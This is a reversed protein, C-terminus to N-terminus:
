STRCRRRVGALSVLGVGLLAMTGPEPVDTIFLTVLGSSDKESENLLVTLTDPNPGRAFMRSVADTNNDLTTDLLMLNFLQFNPDSGSDYNRVELLLNGNAPNYTFPTTFPVFVDFPAPPNALNLAGGSASSFTIPGTRVVTLDPGLNNAFNNSLGDVAAGTTSLSISLNSVSYPFPNGFGVTNLRFAMGYITLPNVGFEGAGYVQQYRVPQGAAARVDFPMTVLGGADVTANAGPVVVDAAAPANWLGAFAILSAATLVARRM